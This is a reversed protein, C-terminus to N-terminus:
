KRLRITGESAEFVLADKRQLLSPGPLWHSYHVFCCYSDGCCLYGFRPCLALHVQEGM